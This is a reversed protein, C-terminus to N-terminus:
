AHARLLFRAHTSAGLVGVLFIPLLSHILESSVDMFFAVFGLVWVSSPVERWTSKATEMVVQSENRCDPGSSMIRLGM